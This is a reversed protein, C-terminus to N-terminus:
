IRRSSTISFWEHLTTRLLALGQGTVAKCGLLPHGRRDVALIFPIEKVDAHCTSRKSVNHNQTISGTSQQKFASQSCLYHAEVNGLAMRLSQCAYEQQTQVCHAHQASPPASSSSSSPYSSSMSFSRSSPKLIAASSSPSPKSGSTTPTKASISGAMTEPDLM